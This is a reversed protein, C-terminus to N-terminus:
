ATIGLDFLTLDADRDGLQTLLTALGEYTGVVQVTHLTVTGPDGIEAAAKREAAAQDLGVGWVYGDTGITCHLTHLVTSTPPPTPTM